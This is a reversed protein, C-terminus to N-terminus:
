AAREVLHKDNSWKVEEIWGRLKKWKMTVARSIDSDRWYKVLVAATASVSSATRQIRQTTNDLVSVPGRGAESCLSSDGRSSTRVAPSTGRIVESMSPKTVDNKTTRKSRVRHRALGCLGIGLLVSSSSSSSCTKVVAANMSTGRMDVQSVSLYGASATQKRAKEILDLSQVRNRQSNVRYCNSSTSPRDKETDYHRIEEASLNTPHSISGPLRMLRARQIPRAGPSKMWPHGTPPPPPQPSATSMMEIYDLMTHLSLRLVYMMLFATLISMLPAVSTEVSEGYYGLYLSSDIYYIGPLEQLAYIDGTAVSTVEMLFDNLGNQFSVSTGNLICKYPGTIDDHLNLRPLELDELINQQDPIIPFPYGCSFISWM